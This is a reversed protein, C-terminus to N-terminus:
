PPPNHPENGGESIGRRYRVERVIADDFDRPLRALPQDNLVPQPLKM